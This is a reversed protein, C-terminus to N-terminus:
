FSVQHVEQNGHVDTIGVEAYDRLLLEAINSHAGQAFVAYYLPTLNACDRYNPSAGLDLLTQVNNYSALRAAKHLPTQGQMNRFDLHAGGSVLVLILEKNDPMSSAVTLPTELIWGFMHCIVIACCTGGFFRDSCYSCIFFDVM